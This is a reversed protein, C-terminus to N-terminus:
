KIIVRRYKVFETNRNDNFIKDIGINNNICVEDLEKNDQYYCVKIVKKRDINDNNVTPKNDCCIDLKEEIQKDIVQEKEEKIQEYLDQNTDIDSDIDTDINSDNVIVPIEVFTKEEEINQDDQTYDEYKILVDFMVEIGRGDVTQYDLNVCDIDVVDFNSNAFIISFPIEENFNNSKILDEELYNGCVDLKGNVVDNKKIFEKIEASIDNIKVFSRLKIFASYNMRLELIDM